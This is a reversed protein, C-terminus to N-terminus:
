RSWTRATSPSRTCTARQPGRRRGEVGEGRRRSWHKALATRWRRARPLRRPAPAPSRSACRRAATQAVFVGVLAFRSAPNPFKAYAAKKPVPFRVATIIEGRSSRPRSCAWSSSTPPSRASTPSSPRAAAGLVAAPYDAAPDNNALSGGLTGMNRVQRDGIGSPSRPSRPSRAGEREASAAVEAHRTMAGISSARRRGRPHRAARRHRAPRRRPRAARPAAEDRRGPEPRRRAGQRRTKALAQAADAVSTPSTTTSPTCPEDGTLRAQGHQIAAVRAAPTAPM